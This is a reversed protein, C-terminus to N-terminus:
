KHALARARRSTHAKKDANSVGDTMHTIKATVTTHASAKVLAHVHEASINHVDIGLSAIVLLDLHSEIAPIVFRRILAAPTTTRVHIDGKKDYRVLEPFDKERAHLYDSDLNILSDTVLYENLNLTEGKLMSKFIEDAFDDDSALRAIFRFPMNISTQKCEFLACLVNEYTANEGTGHKVTTSITGIVSM